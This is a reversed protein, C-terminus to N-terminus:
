KAILVMTAGSQSGKKKRGEEKPGEDSEGTELHKQDLGTNAFEIGLSCYLIIREMTGVSAKRYEAGMKSAVPGDRGCEKALARPSVCIGKKNRM